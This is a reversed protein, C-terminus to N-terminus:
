GELEISFRRGDQKTKTFAKKDEETVNYKECLGKWDTTSRSNGAVWSCLLVGEENKLYAHGQMAQMLSGRLRSMELENEDAQKMMRYLQRALAETDGDAVVPENSKLEAYDVKAQTEEASATKIHKM